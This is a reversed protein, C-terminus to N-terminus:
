GPAARYAPSAPVTVKNIPMPASARMSVISITDFVGSRRQQRFARFADDLARGLRGEGRPGSLVSTVYSHGKRESDSRLGGDVRVGSRGPLGNFGRM